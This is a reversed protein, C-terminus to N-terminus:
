KEILFEGNVALRGLYYKSFATRRLKGTELQRSVLDPLFEDYKVELVHMGAPLVPVLGAMHPEFFSDVDRTAMINRDFTIRVNGAPHVYATRQYVVTIKPELRHVRMQLLLQNMVADEGFPLMEGSLLAGYAERNLMAASKKTFGRLKEKIELRLPANPTDYTRIRYKKRDDVGNENEDMCSNYFDDLYISRVEYCNGVQHTDTQMLANLRDAITALQMDSVLYKQEVRYEITSV